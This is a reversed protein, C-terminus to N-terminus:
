ERDREKLMADAVQYCRPATEKLDVIGNRTIFAQMAKAAFYDRMSMGDHGPTAITVGGPIPRSYTEPIPFAPGGNENSM